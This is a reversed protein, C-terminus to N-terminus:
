SVILAHKTMGVRSSECAGALRMLFPPMRSLNLGGQLPSAPWALAFAPAAPWAPTAVLTAVKGRAIDFSTPWAPAFANMEVFLFQTTLNHISGNAITAQGEQGLAVSMTYLACSYNDWVYPVFGDCVRSYTTHMVRQQLDPLEEARVGWDILHPVQATLDASPLFHQLAAPTTQHVLLLRGTAVAIRLAMLIGRLRDALGHCFVHPLKKGPPLECNWVLYKVGAEPIGKSREQKAWRMYKMLWLLEPTDCKARWQAETHDPFTSVVAACAHTALVACCVWALM